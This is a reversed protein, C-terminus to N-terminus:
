HCMAAVTCFSTPTRATYLRLALDEGYTEGWRQIAEDAGRQTWRSNM